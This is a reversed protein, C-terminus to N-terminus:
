INNEPPDQYNTKSKQHNADMKLLGCWLWQIGRNRWFGKQSAISKKKSPFCFTSDKKNTPLSAPLNGMFLFTKKQFSLFIFFPSSSFSRTPAIGSFEWPQTLRTLVKAYGHIIYWQTLLKRLRIKDYNGYFYLPISLLVHCTLCWPNPHRRSKSTTQGFSGAGGAYASRLRRTLGAYAVSLGLWVLLGGFKRLYSSPLWQDRLLAFWVSKNFACFALIFPFSAM